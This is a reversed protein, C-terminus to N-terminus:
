DGESTHFLANLRNSRSPIQMFNLDVSEEDPSSSCIMSSYFPGLRCRASGCLRWCVMLKIWLELSCFSDEWDGFVGRWRFCVLLARYDM